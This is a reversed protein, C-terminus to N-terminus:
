LAESPSPMAGTARNMREESEHALEIIHHMVMDAVSHVHVRDELSGSFYLPRGVTLNYRGSIYWRGTDEVGNVVSQIAHIRERQLNIGVPIVPAGSELALRAVGTRAKAFGGEAPSLEGEPFILV